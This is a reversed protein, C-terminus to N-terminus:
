QLHHLQRVQGFAERRLEGAPLLLTDRQCAGQGELWLHQQEIFGEPREIGLDALLQTAPEPVQVVLQAEGAHEHGVVLLFRQLQRVTHHHHAVATDLLDVGRLRQVTLRAIAEHEFEEAVDIMQFALNAAAHQGATLRAQCQVQVVARLFDQQAGVLYLHGGGGTGVSVQGRHDGRHDRHAGFHADLQVGVPHVLGPHRGQAM